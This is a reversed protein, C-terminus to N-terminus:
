HHKPIIKHLKIILIPFKDHINNTQNTCSFLKNTSKDKDSPRQFIFGFTFNLTPYILFFKPTSIRLITKHIRFTIINM